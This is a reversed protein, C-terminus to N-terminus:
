SLHIKSNLDIIAGLEENSPMKEGAERKEKVLTTVPKSATFSEAVLKLYLQQLPSERWAQVGETWSEFSERKLTDLKALIQQTAQDPRESLRRFAELDMRQLEGALSTLREPAQIDQMRPKPVAQGSVPMQKPPPTPSPAAGAVPRGMAALLETSADSKKVRERYWEAHEEAERERREKIKQKQQEQIQQIKDKELSEIKQHAEEYYKEVIGSIRNAEDETLGLGGVKTSRSLNDKVILKNQRGKLRSSILSTLRRELYDGKVVDGIESLASTLAEDLAANGTNVRERSVPASEQDTAEKEIENQEITQELVRQAEEEAERQYSQYWKAYEEESMVQTTSLLKLMEDMFNDAQSVEFGLGGESQGRQLVELVQVKTRVGKIYSVMVDRLKKVTEESFISIKANNAVRRAAAGYSMPRLSIRPSKQLETAPVGLEQIRSDVDWIVMDGLPYVVDRLLIKEVEGPNRDPAAQKIKEAFSRRDIKLFILDWVVDMLREWADNEFALATQAKDEQEASRTSLLYDQVAPPSEDFFKLWTDRDM